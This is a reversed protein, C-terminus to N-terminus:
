LEIDPNDADSDGPNYNNYHKFPNIIYPLMRHKMMYRYVKPIINDPMSGYCFSSSHGYGLTHGLEHVWVHLVWNCDINVRNQYFFGGLYSERMGLSEGGGLGAFGSEPSVIGFLLKNKNLISRLMAERDVETKGDNGYINGKFNLLTDRFMDSSFMVAMNVASTAYYRAANPTMLSWNGHGYKGMQIRTKMKISKLMEFVSDNCTLHVEFQNPALLALNNTRISKGSKSSYIMEGMKLPTDLRLDYFGHIEEFQMLLLTDRMEPMTLWLNVDKFDHAMANFVRLKGDKIEAYIPKRVYFARDASVTKEIEEGDEFMAEGQNLFDKATIKNVVPPAGFADQIEVTTGDDSCMWSLMSFAVAILVQRLNM